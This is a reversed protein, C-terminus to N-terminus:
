KKSLSKFQGRVPAKSLGANQTFVASAPKARRARNSHGAGHDIAVIPAMIRDVADVFQQYKVGIDSSKIEECRKIYKAVAAQKRSADNEAEYMNVFQKAATDTVAPNLRHKLRKIATLVMKRQQMAAPRMLDSRISAATALAGLLEQGDSVTQVANIQLLTDM